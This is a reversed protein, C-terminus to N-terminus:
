GSPALDQVLTFRNTPPLSTSGDARLVAVVDYARVGAGPVDLTGTDVM